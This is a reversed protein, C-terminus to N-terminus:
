AQTCPGYACLCAGHSRAAGLGEAINKLLQGVIILLWEHVHVSDCLIRSPCGMSPLQPVYPASGIPFLQDRM